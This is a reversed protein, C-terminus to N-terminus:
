ISYANLFNLLMTLAQARTAQGKPILSGDSGNIIHMSCAWRMAEQAWDSVEGADPFNKLVNLGTSASTDMKQSKAYNYLVVALEERSIGRTPYFQGGDGSIIGEDSAWRVAAAYWADEGVDSYSKEGDIIVTGDVLRHMRSLMTVFMSRDMLANPEFRGDSGGVINNRTAFEVAGAYWADPAVDSYSKEAVSVELLVGAFNDTVTLTSGQLLLGRPSSPTVSGGENRLLTYVRGDRIARIASNGTDAVYITGDEGVTIGQPHDFKANKVAADAYGGIYEGADPAKESVGAVVSVKGGQVRSIRSRGTEAVYIAGKYWCIGMPSELGTAVTTVNGYKDISRIAGNGTDSIYLTGGDDVTLGTPRDFTATRAEGDKRGAEGTGTLTKVRDAGIFRIVNSQTDSVAYGDLFPVIDWPETFFAHDREGDHYAGVPEGSADLVGIKGAVISCKNGKVMWVIKNFTDTVLMSGDETLTVGSLKGGRFDEVDLASVPLALVMALALAIALVRKKM